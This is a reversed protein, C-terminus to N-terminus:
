AAAYPPIIEQVEEESIARQVARYGGWLLSRAIITGLIDM